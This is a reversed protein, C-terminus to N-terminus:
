VTTTVRYMMSKDKDLKSLLFEEFKNTEMKFMDLWYFISWISQAVAKKSFRDLVCVNMFIFDPQM